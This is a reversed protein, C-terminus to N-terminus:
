RLKQSPLKSLKSLRRPSSCPTAAGGVGFFRGRLHPPHVRTLELEGVGHEEFRVLQATMEAKTGRFPLEGSRWKCRKENSRRAGAKEDTM